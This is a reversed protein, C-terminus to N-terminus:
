NSLNYIEEDKEKVIKEQNELFLLFFNIIKQLHTELLQMSVLLDQIEDELNEHFGSIQKESFYISTYNTPISNLLSKLTEQDPLESSSGLM